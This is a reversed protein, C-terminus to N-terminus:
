PIVPCMSIGDSNTSSNPPQPAVPTPAEEVPDGGKITSTSSSRTFTQTLPALHTERLEIARLCSCRIALCIPSGRGSLPPPPVYEQHTELVHHRDLSKSLSFFSLPFAEFSDFLLRESSSENFYISLRPIVPPLGLGCGCLTLPACAPDRCFFLLSCCPELCPGWIIFLCLSPSSYFLHSASQPLLPPSSSSLSLDLPSFLIQTLFQRGSHRLAQRTIGPASEATQGGSCRWM